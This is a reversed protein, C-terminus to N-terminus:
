AAAGSSAEEVAADRVDLRLKGKRKEDDPGHCAFCNDSLIPRVDRNFDLPPQAPPVVAAAPLGAAGGRSQPADEVALARLGVASGITASFAATLVTLRVTFRM